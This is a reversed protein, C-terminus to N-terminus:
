AAAGLVDSSGPLPGPGRRALARRPGVRGARDLPGYRLVSVGAAAHPLPLGRTAQYLAAFADLDQGEIETLKRLTWIEADYPSGGLEAAQRAISDYYAKVKWAAVEIAFENLMQRVSAPLAELAAMEVRRLQHATRVGPPTEVKLTSRHNTRM